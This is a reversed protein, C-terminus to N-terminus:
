PNPPCQPYSTEMEKFEAEKVEMLDDYEKQAKEESTIASELNSKFTDEM